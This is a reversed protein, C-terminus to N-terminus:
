SGAEGGRARRPRACPEGLVRKKRKKRPRVREPEPPISRQCVREVEDDSPHDSVLRFVEDYYAGRYAPVREAYLVVALHQLDSFYVARGM